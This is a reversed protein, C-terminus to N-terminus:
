IMEMELAMLEIQKEMEEEHEQIIIDKPSTM